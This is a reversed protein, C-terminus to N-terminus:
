QPSGPSEIQAVFDEQWRLLQVQWSASEELFELDESLTEAGSRERMDQIEQIIFDLSEIARDRQGVRNFCGAMQMVIPLQWRPSTDMVVIAQYLRLATEYEGEEFFYNALFNGAIRRWEVWESTQNTTPDGGMEVLELLTDRGADIQDMEIQTRAKEYRLEPLLPSEPYEKSFREIARLGDGRRGVYLLARARYFRLTERDEEGLEFLSIREFLDLAQVWDERDFHTRAIEFQAMRSLNLFKEMQQKDSLIISNLVRYFSSIAGEYQGIEQHIKGIQFIIEERRPDGRFNEVFIEMLGISRLPMDMQYYIRALFLLAQKELEPRVDAFNLVTIFARIAAQIDGRDYLDIAEEFLERDEEQPEDEHPEDEQEGPRAAEPDYSFIDSKLIERVQGPLSQAEMAQQMDKTHEAPAEFVEGPAQVGMRDFFELRKDAENGGALSALPVVQVVLLVLSIRALSHLALSLMM